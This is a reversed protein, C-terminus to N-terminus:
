RAVPSLPPRTTNNSRFSLTRGQNIIQSCCAVKEVASFFSFVFLSGTTVDSAVRNHVARGGKELFFSTLVLEVGLELRVLGLEIVQLTQLDLFLDVFDLPAPTLVRCVKQERGVTLRLSCSTKAACQSHSDLSM